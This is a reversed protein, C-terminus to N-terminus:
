ALDSTQPFPSAVLVEEAEDYRLEPTGAVIKTARQWPRDAALFPIEESMWGAVGASTTEGSAIRAANRKAIVNEDAQLWVSADYWGASESRSSGVGEVILVSAEPSVNIAGDRGRENWPPPRFMVQRGAQFPEIIGDLLIQVWDFRSHWWAVDDTHVVAARETVSAMRQALTTKGSSSRGDIAVVVRQGAPREPLLMDLLKTILVARWNGAAPEEPRLLV